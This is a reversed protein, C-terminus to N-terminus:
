WSSESWDIWCIKASPQSLAALRGARSRDWPSAPTGEAACSRFGPGAGGTGNRSPKFRGGRSAVQCQKLHEARGALAAPRNIDAPNAQQAMDAHADCRGPGDDTLFM